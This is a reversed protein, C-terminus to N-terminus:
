MACVSFWSSKSKEMAFTTISYFACWVRSFRVCNLYDPEWDISFRNHTTCAVVSSKKKGMKGCTKCNTKFAQDSFVLRRNLDITINTKKKKSRWAVWANFLPLLFHHASRESQAIHINPRPETSLCCTPLKKGWESTVNKETPSSPAPFFPVESVHHCKQKTRKRTNGDGRGDAHTKLM